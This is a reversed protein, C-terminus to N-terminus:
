VHVSHIAPANSSQPELRPNKFEYVVQIDLRGIVPLPTANVLTGEIFLTNGYHEATSLTFTQDQPTTDTSLWPTIKISSTTVAGSNDQAYLINPKYSFTVNRDDFRYPRAGLARMYDGDFAAPADGYRCMKWYLTPVTSPYQTVTSNSVLGPTYSDYFPKFTYIIKAIRYLGFQKAIEPARQGTIGAKIFLYPTNINVDQSPLTEIVKCTNPGGINNPNRKGRRPKIFGKGFGGRRVFARGRRKAAAVMKSLKSM